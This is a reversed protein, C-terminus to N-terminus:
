LGAFSPLQVARSGLDHNRTHSGLQPVKCGYIAPHQLVASAQDEETLAPEYRHIAVACVKVVLLPLPLRPGAVDPWM